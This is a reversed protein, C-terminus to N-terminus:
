LIFDIYMYSWNQQGQIVWNHIVEAKINFAWFKWNQFTQIPVVNIYWNDWNFNIMSSLYKFSSTLVDSTRKMYVKELKIELENVNWDLLNVELEM